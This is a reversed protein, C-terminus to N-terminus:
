SDYISEQGVPGGAELPPLAISNLTKAKYGWGKIKMFPTEFLKVKLSVNLSLSVNNQFSKYFYIVFIRHFFNYIKRKKRKVFVM